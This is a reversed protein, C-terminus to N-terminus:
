PLLSEGPVALSNATVSASTSRLASVGGTYVFLADAGEM